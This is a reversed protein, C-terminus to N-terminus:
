HAAPAPRRPEPPSGAKRFLPEDQIAALAAFAVGEPCETMPLRVDPRCIGMLHLVRKVASPPPALSLLRHLEYLRDQWLLAEAWDGAACATCMATVAHPAVNAALSVVGHAGHAMFGLAVGDHGSFVRFDPGCVRRASSVRAVDPSSEKLGILNPLAALRELTPELIDVGTRDPANDLIVPLEAAEAIARYHLYLGEQSPRNYWPTTVLVADAGAERARRALGIATATANSSADAIVAARGASAEVCLDLVRRGEALRLAAAEGALHSGVLLGRVGASIQSSVLLELATEDVAPGDFPTALATVALPPGSALRDLSV